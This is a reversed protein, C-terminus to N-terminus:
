NRGVIWVGDEGDVERLHVSIMEERATPVNKGVFDPRIPLERHGRDILVALQIMRARGSAMVADMAARVTRGTYLVDDVLVVVKDLVDLGPVPPRTGNTGKVDDRYPRADLTFVEPRSGEIEFMRDALRQALNAGRTQVGALLVGQLGKNRELVEHSMRTISRQMGSGDMIQAKRQMRPMWGKSIKCPPRFVRARSRFLPGHDCFVAAEHSLCGRPGSGPLRDPNRKNYSEKGIERSQNLPLM